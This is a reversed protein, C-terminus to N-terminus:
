SDSKLLPFSINAQTYASAALAVLKDYTMEYIDRYISFFFRDAFLDNLELTLYLHQFFELFVLRADNYSHVSIHM